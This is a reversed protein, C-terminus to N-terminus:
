GQYSTPMPSTTLLHKFNNSVGLLKSTHSDRPVQMEDTPFDIGTGQATDMLGRPRNTLRLLRLGKALKSWCLSLAALPTGLDFATNEPRTVSNPPQDSFILKSSRRREGDRECSPRKVGALWRAHTKTEKSYHMGEWRQIEM